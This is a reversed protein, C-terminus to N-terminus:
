RPSIELEKLDIADVDLNIDKAQASTNVAVETQTTPKAGIIEIAATTYDFQSEVRPPKPANSEVVTQIAIETM